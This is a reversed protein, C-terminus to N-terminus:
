NITLWMINIIISEEAHLYELFYMNRAPRHHEFFLGFICVNQLGITSLM